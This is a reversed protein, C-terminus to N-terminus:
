LRMNCRRFPLGIAPFFLGYLEEQLMLLAETRARCKLLVVVIERGYAMKYSGKKSSRTAWRRESSSRPSGEGEPSRRCALVHTAHQTREKTKLKYGLGLLLHECARMVVPCEASFRHSRWSAHVSHASAFVGSPIRNEAEHLETSFTIVVM